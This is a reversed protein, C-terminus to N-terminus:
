GPTIELRSCSMVSRWPRLGVRGALSGPPVAVTYILEGGHYVTIREPHARITFRYEQKEHLLFPVGEDIHRFDTYEDGGRGGIQELLLRKGSFM